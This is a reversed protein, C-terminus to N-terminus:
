PTTTTRPSASDNTHAIRWTLAKALSHCINSGAFKQLMYARLFIRQVIYIFDSICSPLYGGDVYFQYTGNPAGDALQWFNSTESTIPADSNYQSHTPSRALIDFVLIVRVRSSIM